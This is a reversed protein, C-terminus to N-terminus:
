QLHCIQGNSTSSQECFSGLPGRAEANARPGQRGDLLSASHQLADKAAEEEGM